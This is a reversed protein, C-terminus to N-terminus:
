KATDFMRVIEDPSKGSKLLSIVDQRGRAEGRAEGKDFAGKMRSNYDWLAKQRSEELLRTREDASLDM